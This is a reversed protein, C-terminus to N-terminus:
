FLATAFTAYLRQSDSSRNGTRNIASYFLSDGFDSVAEIINLSNSLQPLVTAGTPPKAQKAVITTASPLIALPVKRTAIAGVMAAVAMVPVTASPPAVLAPM